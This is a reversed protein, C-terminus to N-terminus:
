GSLEDRPMETQLVPVNIDAKDSSHQAKSLIYM